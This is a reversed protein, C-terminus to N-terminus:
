QTKARAKPNAWRWVSPACLAGLVVGPLFVGLADLAWHSHPLRGAVIDLVHLIAHGGYFFTQGFHVSRCKDLHFASWFFGAGSIAYVLGIDRIFHANYLGTDPVGAPLHMFWLEPDLLMWLGNGLALAGFVLFVFGIPPV